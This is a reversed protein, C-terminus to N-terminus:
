LSKLFKDLEKKKFTTVEVLKGNREIGSNLAGRNLVKISTPATQPNSKSRDIIQKIQPGAGPGNQIVMEGNQSADGNNQTKGGFEDTNVKVPLNSPNHQNTKSFDSLFSSSDSDHESNTCALATSDDEERLKLQKKSFIFEM